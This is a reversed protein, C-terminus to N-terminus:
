DLKIEREISFFLYTEASTNITKKVHERRSGAIFHKIM